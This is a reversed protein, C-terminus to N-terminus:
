FINPLDTYSLRAQVGGMLYLLLFLIKKHTENIRNAITHAMAAIEANFIFMDFIKNNLTITKM